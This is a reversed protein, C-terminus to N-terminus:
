SLSFRPYILERTPLHVAICVYVSVASRHMSVYVPRQVDHPFHQWFQAPVYPYLIDRTIIDQLVFSEEWLVYM